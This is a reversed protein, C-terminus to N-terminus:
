FCFFHHDNYPTIQNIEQHNVKRVVKLNKAIICTKRMNLNQYFPGINTLQGVRVKKIQELNYYIKWKIWEIESVKVVTDKATYVTDEVKINRRKHKLNYNIINWPKFWTLLM